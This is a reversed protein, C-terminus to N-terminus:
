HVMLEAKMKFGESGLYIETEAMLPVDNEDVIIGTVKLLPEGLDTDLLQAYEHDAQIAQFQVTSTKMKRQQFQTLFDLPTCSSAEVGFPAEDMGATRIITSILSVPKGDASFLRRLFFVMEEPDLGLWSAEDVSAPRFIQDLPELSAVRGSEEIQRMVDWVKGIKLGIHSTRPCPYTGDGHRRLIYGEGVLSAMATRLSTRSVGFERALADESPIRVGEPYDGQLIRKRLITEIQQSVTQSRTILNKNM